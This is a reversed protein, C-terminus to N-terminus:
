IHYTLQVVNCCIRLVYSAVKMEICFQQPLAALAASKPSNSAFYESHVGSCKPPLLHVAPYVALKYISKVICYLM